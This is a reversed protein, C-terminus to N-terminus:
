AAGHRNYDRPPQEDSEGTLSFLLPLLLSFSTILKHPQTISIKKTQKKNKTKTIKNKNQEKNQNLKKNLVQMGQLRQARKM